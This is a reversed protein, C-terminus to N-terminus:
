YEKRIQPTSHLINGNEDAVVFYSNPIRDSNADTGTMVNVRYKNGWLPM